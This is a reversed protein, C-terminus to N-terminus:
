CCFKAFYSQQDNWQVINGNTEKLNLAILFYICLCIPILIFGYNYDEVTYIRDGDIDTQGGRQEWNYDMMIGIIWPMIFGASCGITNMVGSAIDSCQYYDNYERILTWKMPSIAAGIGCLITMAIIIYTNTDEDCYIIYVIAFICFGSM